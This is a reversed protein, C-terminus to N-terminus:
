HALYINLTITTTWLILFTKALDTFGETLYENLLKAFPAREQETLDIYQARVVEAMEVRRAVMARGRGTLTAPYVDM